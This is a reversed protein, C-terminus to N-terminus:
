LFVPNFYVGLVADAHTDSQHVPFPRIEDQFKFVMHTFQCLQHRVAFTILLIDRGAAFQLLRHDVHIQSYNGAVKGSDAASHGHSFIQGIVVLKRYFGAAATTIYVMTLNTLRSIGRAIGFKQVFQNLRPKM